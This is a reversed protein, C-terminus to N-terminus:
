FNSTKAAQEAPVTALHSHVKPLRAQVVPIQPQQQPSQVKRVSLVGSKEFIDEQNDIMSKIRKRIAARELDEGAVRYPKHHVFKNHDIRVLFRDEFTFENGENLTPEKNLLSNLDKSKSKVQKEQAKGDADKCNESNTDEKAVEKDGEIKPPELM